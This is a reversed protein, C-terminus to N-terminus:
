LSRRRSLGIGFWLVGFFALAGAAVIGGTVWGFLEGSILTLIGSMSITLCVVGGIAMRNATRILRPKDGQRFLLRHMATPAILLGAAAAATLLVVLYLYREGSTLRGFRASFPVTLLFAFLVQVGTALVRLEGLLEMLNRDVRELETEHRGAAQDDPQALDRDTM